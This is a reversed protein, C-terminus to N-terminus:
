RVCCRRCVGNELDDSSHLCPLDGEQRLLQGATRLVLNRMKRDYEDRIEWEKVCGYAAHLIQKLQPRVQPFSAWVAEVSQVQDVVWHTNFDASIYSVAREASVFMPKFGIRDVANPAECEVVVQFKTKKGNSVANANLQM